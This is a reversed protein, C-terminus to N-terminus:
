KGYNVRFFDAGNIERDSRFISVQFGARRLDAPMNRLGYRRAQERTMRDPLAERGAGTRVPLREAKM